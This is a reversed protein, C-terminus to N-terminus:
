APYIAGLLRAGKAGTIGPINGPIGLIARQALWAFAFAELWDADVGLRDTLEVKRGYLVARLRAVLTGNRAGGGCLYIEAANPFYTFLSEAIGTITLQLLTAQVDAPKEDGSLCSELWALNFIERGTSKPPPLSFFQLTLLKELLEPIVKGSAAWAGNEDYAKGTHGLCWADMIINGPGCDFGAVEGSPALSTLNSIGGINVIVRHILPHGFLVQHFAPVLPAGQGGAAIDRSRFDAVVTIGTLEVLLASNCLQITYSGERQPFHRVTQGHCGIAAVDQREIGSENLLGVVAEAYRHALENGLMAARHLEDHSSHHLDLLRSRLDRDYPLYFTYLLSPSSLNLDALVADIGDLSTGSMIGIYYDSKL